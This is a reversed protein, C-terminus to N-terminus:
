VFRRGTHDTQAVHVKLKKRCGCWVVSYGEVVEIKVCNKQIM